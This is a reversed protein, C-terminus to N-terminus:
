RTATPKSRLKIRDSERKTDYQENIIKFEEMMKYLLMIKAVYYDKDGYEIIREGYMAIEKEIWEIPVIIYPKM